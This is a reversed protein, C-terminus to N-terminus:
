LATPPTLPALTDRVRELLQADGYFLFPGVGLCHEGWQELLHSVDNEGVRECYVTGQWEQIRRPDKSLENLDRWEKTTSTLYASNSLPGNKPVARLRVEVGMRNLYIALEPLDWQHISRSSLPPHNESHQRAVVALLAMAALTTLFLGYRTVRSM